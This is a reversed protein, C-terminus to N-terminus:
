PIGNQATSLSENHTLLNSLVSDDVLQELM